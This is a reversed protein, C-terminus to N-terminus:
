NVFAPLVAAAVVVAMVVMTASGGIGGGGSAEAGASGNEDSALAIHDLTFDHPETPITPVLQVSFGVGLTVPKRGAETQCSNAFM